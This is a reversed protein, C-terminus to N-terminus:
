ASANHHLVVQRTPRFGAQEYFPVLGPDCFLSVVPIPQLQEVIAAVLARGVGLGRVDPAVVVDEIYARLVGDSVCRAFGVLRDGHWAGVAPFADLVMAVQDVSREPWWGEARYLAVVHDAPIPRSAHPLVQIEPVDDVEPLTCGSLFSAAAHPIRRSRGAVALTLRDREEDGDAPHDDRV